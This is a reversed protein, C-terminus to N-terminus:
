GARREAAKLLESVWASFTKGERRASALAKVLLKPDLSIVVREEESNARVEDPANKAREWRARQAATLPTTQDFDIGRDFRAIEADREAATMKFFSKPKKRM